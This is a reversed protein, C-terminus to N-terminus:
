PVVDRVLESSWKSCLRVADDMYIQDEPKKMIGYIQSYSAHVGYVYICSSPGTGVKSHQTMSHILILKNASESQGKEYNFSYNIPNIVENCPKV